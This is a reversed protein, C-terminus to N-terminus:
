LVLECGNRKVKTEPLAHVRIHIIIFTGFDTLKLFGWQDLLLNEPKVDMCVIKKQQLHELALLLCAVYFKAEREYLVAYQQLLGKLDGGGVPELMLYVCSKDQFANYMRCVFPSECHRLIEIEREINERMGMVELKQKEIIKIALLQPLNSVEELDGEHEKSFSKDRGVSRM